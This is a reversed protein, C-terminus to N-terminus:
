WRGFARREKFHDLLEKRQDPTLVEAADLLAASMTKSANDIAQVRETRVKEAAARDITPAGLIDALQDRADIFGERMSRMDDRAKGVIAKIKESQEPTAKVAELVYDLRREAFGRGGWASHMFHGGEMGRGFEGSWAGALGAGVLAVLAVGGIVIRSRWGGGEVPLKTDDNRNDTEM